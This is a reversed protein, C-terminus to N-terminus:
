KLYNFNILNLGRTKLSVMPLIAPTPDHGCLKQFATRSQWTGSNIISIGRYSCNGNSHVHGSHFIDPVTRIIMQDEGSAVLGTDYPPSLHRRQLLSQMVVHPETYGNKLQPDAPIMTDFSVGHYMLVDLGGNDKEEIKVTSPNSVFEVNRLEFLPAAVEPDLPPQPQGGRLFDHNGPSLIIKMSKPLKDFLEAAEQYQEEINAIELEEEQKPYIGIGDVIDGAVFCYRIKKVLDTQTENGVEGNAWSLFRNFEKKMFKKSGIHTDSLFIAYIDQTLKKPETSIPVGPHLIDDLFLVTGNTNDSTTGIVGIAEDMVLGEAKKRVEPKSAIVKLTGTPDEIEIMM